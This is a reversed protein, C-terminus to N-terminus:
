EKSLEFQLLKKLSTSDLFPYLEDVDLSPYKGGIYADIVNGLCSESVFPVINMTVEGGTELSRLFLRDCDEEQLFPMIAGLDLGQVTKDSALIKEMLAHIDEEDLFPLMRLLKSTKPSFSKEEEDDDDDDKDHHHGYHHFANAAKHIEAMDVKPIQIVEVTDGDKENEPVEIYVTQGNLITKKLKM